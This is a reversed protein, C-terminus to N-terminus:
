TTFCNLLMWAMDELLQRDEDHFADPRDSDIDIEGYVVNEDMIPVVIESRTEISCALYRDDANVDPVLITQREAAAAGCIGQDIPICTHPTPGGIYNHLVLEEGRLVYIGVWDYKPFAEKLLRVAQKLIEDKNQEVALVQQFNELVENGVLAEIARLYGTPGLGTIQKICVEKIVSIRRFPERSYIDSLHVEVAPLQTAAIADRLAYSYHTLAGPNIVLGDAWKRNDHLFDILVGEHNSQLIRVEEIKMQAAFDRIQENIEGLTASGYVEPEREGLLNLNPGHAVLIRRM